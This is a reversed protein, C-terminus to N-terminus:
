IGSSNKRLRRQQNKRERQRRLKPPGTAKEQTSKGERDISVWENEQYDWKNKQCEFKYCGESGEMFNSDEM